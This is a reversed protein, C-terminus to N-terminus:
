CPYVQLKQQSGQERAVEEMMWLIYVQPGPASDPTYPGVQRTPANSSGAATCPARGHLGWGAPLHLSFDLWSESMLGLLVPLLQESPGKVQCAPM